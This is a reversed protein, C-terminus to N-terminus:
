NASMSALVADAIKLNPTTEWSFIETKNKLANIVIVLLNKFKFEHKSLIGYNKTVDIANKNKLDLFTAEKSDLKKEVISQVWTYLKKGDNIGHNINKSIKNTNKLIYNITALRGDPLSESFESFNLADLESEIEEPTLNLAVLLATMAGASRGVVWHLKDLLGPKEKLTKYAGAYAIGKVGGGEFILSTIPPPPIKIIIKEDEM